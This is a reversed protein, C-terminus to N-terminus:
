REQRTCHRHCDTKNTYHVRLSLLNSVTSHPFVSELLNQITAAPVLVNNRVLVGDSRGLIYVLGKEDMVACDSTAYWQTDDETYFSSAGTNGMYGKTVMSGSLHITGAQNCPVAKGNEDVVKCRAGPLVYGSAAIGMFSPMDDLKPPGSPWGIMCAAETMGYAAAVKAKRFTKQTRRLAEMTVTSGILQVLKLSDTNQDSHQQLHQYIMDAMHVMISLTLPKYKTIASATINPDSSEKVLVTANGSYWTTCLVAPAGAQYTKSGVLALPPTFAPIKQTITFPELLESVRRLCPKPKNSSSGSTYIIMALRDLSDQAPKITLQDALPSDAIAGMCVWRNSVSKEDEETIIGVFPTQDGIFDEIFTAEKATSVMVASPAVDRIYQKLHTKNPDEFVVKDVTVVTYCNFACVWLMLAWEISSPVILLIKSGPQINSQRLFSSIRLTAIQLEAFSWTLCDPEVPKPLFWSALSGLLLPMSTCQRMFSQVSSGCKRNNKPSEKGTRTLQALHNKSQAPVILATRRPDLAAGRQLVAWISQPGVARSAGGNAEALKTSSM